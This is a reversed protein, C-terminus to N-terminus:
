GIVYKRNTWSIVLTFYLAAYAPTTVKHPQVGLVVPAEPKTPPRTEYPFSNSSTRM